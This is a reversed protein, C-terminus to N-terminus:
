LVQECLDQVAFVGHDLTMQGTELGTLDLLDHVLTIMQRENQVILNLYERQRPNLNVELQERLLSSLGLITTM